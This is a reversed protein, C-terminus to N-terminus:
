GEKQRRARSLADANGKVPVRISIRTGRSPASIVDMTGGLRGVQERVSFLGFGGAGSSAGVDIPDFGVGQDEVDLQFLQDRQHLSVKASATQAHKFVNLLLERVARFLLTASADDLADDAGDDIVTVELRHRKQLDEVLWSLAAKFGLDHLIPPSLEFILTRTDTASQALLDVAQDVAVRPAGSISERMSTLTIQALALSQGIRDHLDAAIRRREREEALAADFAMHRLRDRYDRLKGEAARRESIDSIFSMVLPGGEQQMSGLVVELPFEVGDKRLGLLPV